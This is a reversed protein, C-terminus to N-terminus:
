IKTSTYEGKIKKQFFKGVSKASSWTGITKEPIGKYVYTGGSKFIVMTTKNNTSHIIEEIASSGDQKIMTFKTSM